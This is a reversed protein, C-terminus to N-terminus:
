PLLSQRNSSISFTDSLTMCRSNEEEKDSIVILIAYNDAIHFQVGFIRGFHNIIEFFGQNVPM